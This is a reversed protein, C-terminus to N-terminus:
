AEEVEEEDEIKRVKYKRGNFLDYLAPVVFLTMLTAYSLGGITVVAMGQMMEAGMGTALAMPLMGLITTLATMLIPRLRIRGTEVLADRKEMGEARMQNVSDVFVIGNNVVVGSLVLFGVMATMSIEMHLLYLALLGGTFALPITFLVIFPSKFSQFQAVMILFILVIALVIMLYMDSMMEDISENEGALKVSYGEPVDYADLKEQMERGLLAVNHDEDVSCSVSLTRRQDARSISSQSQKYSIDCIDAVRIKEKGDSTTVDITIEGIGDCTRDLNAGDVVVVDLEKGDVTMQSVTTGTNVAMAVAQYVQGVTLNYEAARERDVTVTLQPVSDQSGDDIETTGEIERMMDAVDAAIATLVDMDAGKIEVEMGSGSLASMDMMSESTIVEYGADAAAQVLDDSVDRSTVGSDEDLVVYFSRSVEGSNSGGSMSSLMSGGGSMVGITDVGEVTLMADTLEACVENAEEFTTGEPLTLSVTMQNSSMSSFMTMGMSIAQQASFVLLAIVLALVPLKFRLTFRLLKAYGAQVAKLIRQKGKQRKKLLSSSMAPVLTLAVALSALLAYAITLAIDQFLERTMGDIFVIPLFVCITTLTSSFLAGSVQNAGRVCAKLIPMKEENRLRYINEIVVISNDVLMGIALSLGSLSIINLTIGSFYMCVLAAVVSLPIACAIIITPRFNALFIALVIVALIAGVGLSELVSDIILNIYVGQDMLTTFRLNEDAASLKEFTKTIEESVETTSATSQKSFSLAVAPNGNVIAFVEDSNDTREVTAVDMLRVEDVSDLGMKFLVLNKLEDVSQFKDGVRVLYQDDGEYVYGAPMSMNQAGLIQSVMQMSILGDINANELAEDRKEEFEKRGEALKQKAESLQGEAEGFKSLATERAARLQALADAMNTDEDMGEVLGGPLIGANLKELMSDMQQVGADLQALNAALEDRQAQLAGPDAQMQQWALYAQYEQSERIAAIQADIAAIQQNLADAAGGDQAAKMASLEAEATALLARNAALEEQAQSLLQQASELKAQDGDGVARANLADLEAQKEAIATANAGASARLTVNQQTLEDISQQTEAAAQKAADLASQAQDVGDGSYQAKAADLAQQKEDVDAQQGSLKATLGDLEKERDAVAQEDVVEAAKLQEIESQLGAVAAETEAAQRQAEDLASQAERVPAYGAEAAALAQERNVVDSKQQDLQAQLGEIVSGNTAVTQEISANEGNLRDIDAQLEAIRAREAETLGKGSLENIYAQQEAITKENAAVASKLEDVRQQQEAVAEESPASEHGGAANLQEQLAAKQAELQGLGDALQQLAALQDDTPSQSLAADLQAIAQVLQERQALLQERQAELQAITEPLQASGAELQEIMGDIQALAERKAGALQRKGSNLQEQADNLELEVDALEADVDRLILNNIADIRSQRITVTVEEEIMGSADVSAVGNIGEMDTMLTNNVYDSLEYVDKGEYDVSAVMVPMMDPNIKMVVPTGVSDSWSGEIQSIASSIEILATDMNASDEYELIVMSVNESSVSQASKLDTTSALGAELPKTVTQEVQEPSAGVYTTYVVVYPLNIDPLLDTRMNMFSVVGLVLVLIVGVVVTYPKKVSYKAFM